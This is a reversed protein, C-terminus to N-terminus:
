RSYSALLRLQLPREQPFNHKFVNPLLQNAEITKLLPGRNVITDGSALDFWKWVVCSLVDCM